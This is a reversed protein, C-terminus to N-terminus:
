KTQRYTSFAADQEFSKKISIKSGREKESDIKINPNSKILPHMGTLAGIKVNPMKKEEMIGFLFFSFNIKCKKRKWLVM